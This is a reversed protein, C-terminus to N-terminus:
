HVMVAHVVSLHLWRISHTTTPTVAISMQHISRATAAPSSRAASRQVDCRICTFVVSVVVSIVVCWWGRVNARCVLRGDTSQMFITLPSMLINYTNVLNFPSLITSPFPVTVKIDNRPNMASVEQFSIGSIGVYSESTVNRTTSALKYLCTKSRLPPYM